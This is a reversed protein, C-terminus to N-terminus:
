ALELFHIHEKKSSHRSGKAVNSPVFVVARRLQSTLESKESTPFSETLTHVQEVLTMGRRWVQLDRYSEVLKRGSM